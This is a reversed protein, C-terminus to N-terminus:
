LAFVEGAHVARLVGSDLRLQLSGDDGFALYKTVRTDAMVADFESAYM